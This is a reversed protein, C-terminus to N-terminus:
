CQIGRTFSSRLYWTAVIQTPWNAEAGPTRQSFRPAEAVFNGRLIRANGGPLATSRSWQATMSRNM